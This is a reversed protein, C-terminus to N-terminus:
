RADIPQLGIVALPDDAAADGRCPRRDRGGGTRRAEAGLVGIRREDLAAGHELQGFPELEAPDTIMPVCRM